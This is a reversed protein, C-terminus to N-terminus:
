DDDAENEGSEARHEIATIWAPYGTKDDARIGTDLDQEGHRWRLVLLGGRGVVKGALAPELRADFLQASPIFIPTSGQRQILAGAETLRAVSEARGGLGRAVIRDQWRSALTSGVYLGSLPAALEAGLAAPVRPLEPLWDQRRGRSRWGLRMGTVALAFLLGFVAVLQWRTM